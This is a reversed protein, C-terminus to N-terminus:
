ISLCRVKGSFNKLAKNWVVSALYGGLAGSIIGATLVAIELIPARPLVGLVHVSFYYSLVGTISTSVSAAATARGAEVRGDPSAVKLKNVLVDTLLGYLLAFIATLPALQPRTVATLAAGVAAVKTAGYPKSFMAGVTLFFAQFVTLTKDIPTPLITKAAFVAVGLLITILNRWLLLQKAEM